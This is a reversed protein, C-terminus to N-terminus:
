ERVRPIPFRGIPANLDQPRLPMPRRLGDYYADAGASLEPTLKHPIAASLDIGVERMVEVVLPHVREERPGETDREALEHGCCGCDNVTELHAGGIDWDSDPEDHHHIRRQRLNMIFVQAFDEAVAAPLLKSSAIATATATKPNFEPSAKTPTTPGSTSTGASIPSTLTANQIRPRNKMDREAAIGERPRYILRKEILNRV